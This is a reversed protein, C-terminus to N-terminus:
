GSRTVYIAGPNVRTLDRRAVLAAACVVSMGLLMGGITDTFYHFTSGVGVMALAVYLVAILVAWLAGGAVLVFLGLVVTTTTIHGSPYALGDDKMRGFLPKIFQVLLYAVPPFTVAVAALRRWRRYLAMGVVAFGLLVLSLPNALYSLEQTASDEHGLFWDDLPTSGKGVAMGLLIMAAVGVLPWWWRIRIM